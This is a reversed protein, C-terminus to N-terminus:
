AFARPALLPVIADDLRLVGSLLANPVGTLADPSVGVVDEVEDVWMLFAGEGRLVVLRQDATLGPTPLGLRSRPNIVPLVSGHLNLVGLWSSDAEPLPLVAAMPLVREVATLPLGFRHEGLRVLLAASPQSTM